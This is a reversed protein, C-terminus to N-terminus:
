LSLSLSDENVRSTHIFWLSHGHPPFLPPQRWGGSSQINSKHRMGRQDLRVSVNIPIHVTRALSLWWYGHSLAIRRKVKRGAM